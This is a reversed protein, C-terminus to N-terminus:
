LPFYLDKHIRTYLNLAHACQPTAKSYDLLEGRSRNAVKSCIPRVWFTESSRPANRGAAAFAAGSLRTRDHLRRGALTQRARRPKRAFFATNVWASLRPHRAGVGANRM